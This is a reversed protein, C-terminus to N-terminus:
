RSFRGRTAIFSLVRRDAARRTLALTRWDTARHDLLPRRDIADLTPLPRRYAARQTLSHAGRDAADRCARCHAAARDVLSSSRRDAARHDLPLTRWETARHDFPLRRTEAPARIAARHSRALAGTAPANISFSAGTAPTETPAATSPPATTPPTAASSPPAETPAGLTGAALPKPSFVGQAIEEARMAANAATLAAAASAAEAATKASSFALRPVSSETGFVVPPTLPQPFPPPPALPPRWGSSSATGSDPPTRAPTPARGATAHALVPEEHNSRTLTATEAPRTEERAIVLIQPRATAPRAAYERRVVEAITLAAHYSRVRVRCIEFM